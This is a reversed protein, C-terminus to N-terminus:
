RCKPRGEAITYIYQTLNINPNTTIDVVSDVTYKKYITKLIKEIYKEDLVQALQKTDKEIKRNNVFIKDLDRNM